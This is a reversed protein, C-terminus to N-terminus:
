LQPSLVLKLSLTCPCLFHIFKVLFDWLWLSCVLRHCRLFSVWVAFECDFYSLLCLDPFSVMLYWVQDLIGCLFTVLICYVDGVLALPCGKGLLHGCPLLSCVCAHSVCSLLLM